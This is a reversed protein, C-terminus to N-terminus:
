NLVIEKDQLVQEHFYIYGSLFENLTKSKKVLDVLM